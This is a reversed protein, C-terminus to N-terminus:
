LVSSIGGWEIDFIYYFPMIMVSLWYMLAYETKYYKQKKTFATTLGHLHKCFLMHNTM